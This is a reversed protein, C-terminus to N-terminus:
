RIATLQSRVERTLAIYKDAYKQSPEIATHEWWENWSNIMVMHPKNELAMTVTEIYHNGDRRDFVIGERQPIQTDDYGPCIHPVFYKGDNHAHVITSIRKMNASWFSFWGTSFTFIGDFVELIRHLEEDSEYGTAQYLFTGELDDMRLRSFIADWEAVDHQDSGYCFFVIKDRLWTFAPTDKYTSILFRLHEEISWVNQFYFEGLFCLKFDQVEAISTLYSIIASQNQGQTTEGPSVADVSIAFADIGARKADNIHMTMVTVNASDYDGLLPHDNLMSNNWNWDGPYWIYYNAVLYKPDGIRGTSPISSTSYLSTFFPIIRSSLIALLIINFLLGRKM